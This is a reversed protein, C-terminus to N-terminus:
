DHASKAQHLDNVPNNHGVGLFFPFFGSIHTFVTSFLTIKLRKKLDETSKQKKVEQNKFVKV